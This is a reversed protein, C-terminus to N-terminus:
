AAYARAPAAASEPPEPKVEDFSLYRGNVLAYVRPHSGAADSADAFLPFPGSCGIRALSSGSAEDTADGSFTFIQGGFPVLGFYRRPLGEANLLVFRHLDGSEGVVFLEEFAAPDRAYIPGVPSEPVIMTLDDVVFDSEFGAFAFTSEGDTLIAAAGLSESACEASEVGAHEPLYRVLISKEEEEDNRDDIFVYIPGSGEGDRTYVTMTGVEALRDLQEVDPRVLRDFLYREGAVTLELPVDVPREDGATVIGGASETGGVAYVFGDRAAFYVVGGEVIPTTTISAGINFEWIVSADAANLVYLKRHKTGVYIVGDLFSPSSDVWDGTDFQWRQEGSAADLAFLLGLRNGYYAAGDFVAASARILKGTNERFVREEEIINFAYAYGDDSGFYAIGDVITPTGGISGAVQHRWLPSGDDEHVGYLFGGDIDGTAIVVQGDWYAPSPIFESGDILFRWREEGSVADLAYLHGDYSTFYVSGDHVLPSSLIMGGSQFSWRIAGTEAVLCVFLGDQGGAYLLGGVVAPTSVVNREM